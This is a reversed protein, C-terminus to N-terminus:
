GQQGFQFEDVIPEVDPGHVEPLYCMFHDNGTAGAGSFRTDAKEAVIVKAGLEAARIAAMMGAIGGGICLVDAEVTREKMSVTTM